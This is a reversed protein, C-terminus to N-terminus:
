RKREAFIWYEHPIPSSAWIVNGNEDRRVERSRSDVEHWLVNWGAREIINKAQEYNLVSYHNLGSYTYWEPAPLVVGLWNKSVRRWEMLTLLPMPSHELSHRSFVLDFSNDPYELFSFDMKKVNRGANKAVLFDEGLCVGEYQVNWAKFFDECFGEGCGVDLVNKCGTVRSFWHDIVLKALGAHDDNGSPQPYVDGILENLYQDIHAYDRM